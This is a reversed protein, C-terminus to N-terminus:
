RFRETRGVLVLKNSLVFKYKRYKEAVLLNLLIKNKICILFLNTYFLTGLSKKYARKLFNLFIQSGGVLHRLFSDKQKLM